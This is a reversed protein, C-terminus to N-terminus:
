RVAIVVNSAIDVSAGVPAPEVVVGRRGMLERYEEEGAVSVAVDVVDGAHPPYM